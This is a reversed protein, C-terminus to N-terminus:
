ATAEQSYIGLRTANVPVEGPPSIWILTDDIRDVAYDGGEPLGARVQKRLESFARGMQAHDIDIAGPIEQMVRVGGEFLVSQTGRKILVSGAPM